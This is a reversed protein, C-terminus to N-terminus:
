GRRGCPRPRLDGHLALALAAVRFPGSPSAGAQADSPRVVAISSPRPWTAVKPEPLRTAESTGPQPRIAARGDRAFPASAVKGSPTGGGQILAERSRMATAVSAPRRVIVRLRASASRWKAPHSGNRKVSSLGQEPIPGASSSRAARPLSASATRSSKRRSSMHRRASTARAMPPDIRIANGPVM